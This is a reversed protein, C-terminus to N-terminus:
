GASNMGMREAVAAQQQEAKEQHAELYLMTTTASKHGLLQQIVQVPTGAETATRRVDEKERMAGLLEAELEAIRTNASRLEQELTAAMGPRPLEAELEAIRDEYQRMKSSQALGAICADRATEAFKQAIGVAEKLKARLDDRQEAICEVCEGNRLIRGTGGHCHSPNKCESM